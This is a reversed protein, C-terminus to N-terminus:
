LKKLLKKKAEEYEQETIAKEDLLSKLRQIQIILDDYLAKDKSKKDSLNKKYEALAVAEIKRSNLVVEANIPKVVRYGIVGIFIVLALLLGLVLARYKEDKILFIILIAAAVLLLIVGIFLALILRMKTQLKLIKARSTLVTDNSEEVDLKKLILENEKYEVETSEGNILKISVMYSNTKNNFSKIEGDTDPFVYGEKINKAALCTVETGIEYKQEYEFDLEKKAMGLERKLSMTFSFRECNFTKM